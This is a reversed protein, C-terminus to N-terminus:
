TNTLVINFLGPEIVSTVSNKITLDARWFSVIFPILTSRFTEIYFEKVLQKNERQMLQSFTLQLSLIWVSVSYSANRSLNFASPYSPPAARRAWSAGTIIKELRGNWISTQPLWDDLKRTCVWAKAVYSDIYVATLATSATILLVNFNNREHNISMFFIRSRYKDCPPSIELSHKM